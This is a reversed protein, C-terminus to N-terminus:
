YYFCLFLFFDFIVPPPSKHELLLIRSEAVFKAAHNGEWVTEPGYLNKKM